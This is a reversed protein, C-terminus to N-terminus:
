QPETTLLSAPSADEWVRRMAGRLDPLPTGLLGAARETALSIDRPRPARGPPSERDASSFYDAATEPERLDALLMRGIDARSAAQTGAVHLIGADGRTALELLADSLSSADIPTRVEDTLFWLRGGARMTAVLGSLFSGGAGWPFGLVLPIRVVLAGPCRGLAEKEAAAKSRGYENLPNPTDSENYGGATGNFVNDTSISVLRAGCRASADAVGATGATNIERAENPHQECYDINSIAALHVVADPQASLIASGVSHEDRLDMRVPWVGRIHPRESLYGGAVSWGHSVAQRALHGGVFGSAGTIFLRRM